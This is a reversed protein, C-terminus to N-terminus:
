KLVAEISMTIFIAAMVILSVRFMKRAWKKDDTAFFGKIGVLLWELGAFLAVTLYIRGAYDFVFLLVCATVFAAVYILIYVKTTTIGKKAPLTPIGAATYEDQRYISISYFHPIQWIFLILFLLLAGTDFRNTVACYGVVPPVAGSFSGIVVGLTTKRKGFSYAILYILTGALAVAVTLTNTYYILLGFGILGCIVGLFLAKKVSIEKKVLPRNKTREMKVDIKRDIINNVIGACAIVLSLGIITQVLLWYNFVGRSALFFGAATTIANGYIIGPKTLSYYSKLM